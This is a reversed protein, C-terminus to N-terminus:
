GSALGKSLLSEIANQRSVKHANQYEEIGAEVFENFRTKGMIADHLVETQNQGSSEKMRELEDLAERTFGILKKKAVKKPSTKGM